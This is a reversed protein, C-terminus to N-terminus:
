IWIKSLVQRHANSSCQLVEAGPRQLGLPVRGLSELAAHLFPRASIEGAPRTPLPEPMRTREGRVCNGLSNDRPRLRWSCATFSTQRVITSSSALFDVLHSRQHVALVGAEGARLSGILGPDHGIACLDRRLHSASSPGCSVNMSCRKPENREAGRQKWQERDV